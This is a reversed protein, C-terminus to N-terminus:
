VGRKSSGMGCAAIHRGAGVAGVVDIWADRDINGTVEYEVIATEGGKFFDKKEALAFLDNM